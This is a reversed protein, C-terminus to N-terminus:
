VGAQLKMAGTKIAVNHVSRGMLAEYSVSGMSAKATSHWEASHECGNTEPWIPIGATFHVLKADPNSADYGVLHNWATPLEGVTHAWYFTLPNLHPKEVVLPTLMQCLPNNFVMVSAWEFKKQGKVAFVPTKPEMLPYALLEAVDGRVLVDSDMFISVGHFDCLWPALFRSYTFATLGVRTIPLQAIDLRTISVPVSTRQWVSQAAVQFAIPQRRDFGIFVRLPTM